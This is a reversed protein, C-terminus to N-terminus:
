HGSAQSGQEGQAGVTGANLPTASTGRHRALGETDRQQLMNLLSNGLSAVQATLTTVREAVYLFRHQPLWASSLGGALGSASM